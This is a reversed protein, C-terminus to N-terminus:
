VEQGAAEAGAGAGGGAVVLYEVQPPAGLLSNYTETLFGGIYRRSM